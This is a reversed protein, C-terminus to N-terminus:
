KKTAYNELDTFVVNKEKTYSTKSKELKTSTVSFGYYDKMIEDEYIATNDTKVEELDYIKVGGLYIDGDNNVTIVKTPDADLTYFGTAAAIFADEKESNSCSASMMMLLLVLLIKKM